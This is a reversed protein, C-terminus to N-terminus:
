QVRLHQPQDALAIVPRPTIRHGLLVPRNAHGLLLPLLEDARVTGYWGHRAPAEGFATVEDCRVTPGVVTLPTPEGAHLLSHTSPTSHDGTVAVIAHEAIDGLRALGRDIGELVTRKAHPAKTHGAEDTTKTHVHVFRAGVDILEEAATLRADLDQKMDAQPGLHIHRMGLMTALGRYLRTSTVAAGAVGIQDIFAPVHEYVGAWKTTLVDLAPLGRATRRSNIPSGVLYKRAAYLANTLTVTFPKGADSTPRPQLWPHFAEFFPDSDTVDAITHAPATLLAEGRGGLSQIHIGHDALTPGLATLLADADDNDARLSRGTIWLRDGDQQSTRLSAHVTAANPTVNVDAGLAELVGRGPFPVTSYGFMAWHALESTPPM